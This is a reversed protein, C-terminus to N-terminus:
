SWPMQNKTSIFLSGEKYSTPVDILSQVKKWGNKQAFLNVGISTFHKFVAEANTPTGIEVIADTKDWEKKTTGLLIDKEHGEVDMKVFDVGAVIKNFAVVPVEFRELAGYPDSKAGALHSGTTNGLVRVFEAKGEKTSVAAQVLEVGRANNAKLNKQILGAHYPDPEFSTVQFGVKSMMISHLGINAGIDLTKKYRNRNALYFSFIILEDLGFLDLSDIAGMKIYPFSLDGFPGFPKAEAEEASFPLAMERAVKKFVSYVKSQPGHQEAISPLAQFFDDINESSLNM